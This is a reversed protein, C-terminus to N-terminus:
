IMRPQVGTYGLKGENILTGERSGPIKRPHGKLVQFLGSVWPLVMPRAGAMDSHAIPVHQTIVAM